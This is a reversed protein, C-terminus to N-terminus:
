YRFIFLAAPFSKPPASDNFFLPEIAHLAPSSASRSSSMSQLHSFQTRPELGTSCLEVLMTPVAGLGGSSHQCTHGWISDNKRASFCTRGSCRPSPRQPVLAQHHEHRVRSETSM